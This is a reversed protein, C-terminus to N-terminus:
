IMISQSPSVEDNNENCNFRSNRIPHNDEHDVISDEQSATLNVNKNSMSDKSILETIESIM